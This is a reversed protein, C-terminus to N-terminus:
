KNCFRDMIRKNLLLVESSKITSNYYCQGLNYIICAMADTANAQDNHNKLFDVIIDIIDVNLNYIAVSIGLQILRHLDDEQELFFRVIEQRNYRVANSFAVNTIGVRKSEILEKVKDLDNMQIALDFEEISKYDYKRKM